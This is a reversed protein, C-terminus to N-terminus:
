LVLLALLVIEFVLLLNPHAPNSSRCLGNYPSLEFVILIFRILFMMHDTIHIPSVGGEIAWDIRM